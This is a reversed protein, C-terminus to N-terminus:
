SRNSASHEFVRRKIQSLVRLAVSRIEKDIVFHVSFFFVLAGALAGVGYVFFVFFNEATLPFRLMLFAVVGFLLLNILLTKYARIPKRNLIKVNAYIIMDNTRYLLALITGMLVGSMGFFNVLVISFVINIVTETITNPITNRARGSITILKQSVLRSSSLLQIVAFLIPLLPQIYDADTVGDTYLSIFPLIVVVVATMVAFVFCSVVIEYLDHLRIYGERSRHYETGLKFDIGNFLVSSLRNVAAFVMNYIAYVSAEKMSCFVSILIIDTNNFVAYSIEHIVYAGRQELRKLDANKERKLWPYTKKVYVHLVSANVLSGALAALQVSVIDLGAFILVIEVATSVTKVVISLTSSIYNRGDALLLINYTNSFSFSIVSSIGRLLIILRITSTPVDTNALFPYIACFVIICAIYVPIVRNFYRRTASVTTSIAARDDESFDKYLRNLSAAGIGSELLALYTFIQTITSTVGNVESGFSLLIFRPLIVGLALLFLQSGFGMVLNKLIKKM